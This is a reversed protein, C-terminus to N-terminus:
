VFLMFINKSLDYVTKLFLLFGMLICFYAIVKDYKEKNTAIKLFSIGPFVFMVFSTLISVVCKAFINKAIIQGCSVIVITILAGVVRHELSGVPNVLFREYEQTIGIFCIPVGLATIFLATLLLTYFTVPETKDFNEFWLPKSSPYALYGTISVLLHIFTSLFAAVMTVNLLNKNEKGNEVEIKDLFPLVCYHYCFSLSVRSISEVLNANARFYKIKEPSGQLGKFFSFSCFIGVSLFGLINVFYLQSYKIFIFNLFVFIIGCVFLSGMKSMGLVFLVERVIDVYTCISFVCLILVFTKILPKTDKGLTKAMLREYNRTETKISTKMLIFLSLHAFVGGLVVFMLIGYVMGNAAFIEANYLLSNGLVIKAINIGAILNKNKM